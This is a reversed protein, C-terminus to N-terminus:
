SVACSGSLVCWGTEEYEVAASMLRDGVYQWGLYIRVVATAVVLLSGTCASLLFQATQSAPDFTQYAIPGGVLAFFFAFIVGL